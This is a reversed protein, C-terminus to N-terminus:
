KKSNFEDIFPQNSYLSDGVIVAPLFTHDQKIRKILRKGANRECDQKKRGDENRIFELHFPIVKRMKLHVLTAQLIQLHYRLGGEKATKKPVRFSIPRTFLVHCIWM